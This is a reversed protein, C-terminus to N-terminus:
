TPPRPAQNPEKQEDPKREREILETAIERLEAAHMQLVARPCHSDLDEAIGYLYAAIETLTSM